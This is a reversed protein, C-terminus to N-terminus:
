PERTARFILQLTSLPTHIFMFGPATEVKPFDDQAMVLGATLLLLGVFIISKRMKTAGKRGLNLQFEVPHERKGQLHCDRYDPVSELEPAIRRKGVLLTGRVEAFSVSASSRKSHTPQPFDSRPTARHM